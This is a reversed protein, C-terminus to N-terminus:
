EDGTAIEVLEQELADLDVDEPVWNDPFSLRVGTIEDDEVQFVGYRTGDSLDRRDAVEALRDLADQIEETAGLLEAFIRDPAYDGKYVVSESIEFSTGNERNATFRIIRDGSGSTTDSEVSELLEAVTIRRGNQESLSLRARELTSLEYETGNQADDFESANQAM